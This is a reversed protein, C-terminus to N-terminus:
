QHLGPFAHQALLVSHEVEVGMPQPVNTHLFLRCAPTNRIHTFLHAPVQPTRKM